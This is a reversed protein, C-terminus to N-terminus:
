MFDSLRMQAMETDLRQKSVKYYYEDLEFGVFKHNTNYCAILSSASGVHTDLIIDNPKAYRNLLWEYLAIGFQKALVESLKNSINAYFITPESFGVVEKKILPIKEGSDSEYFKINGDQDREYVEIRKGQLSYKMKQKNIRLM